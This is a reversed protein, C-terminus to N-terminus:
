AVGVWLIIVSARLPFVEQKQKIFVGRLTMMIMMTM